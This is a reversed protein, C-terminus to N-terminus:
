CHSYKDGRVGRAEFGKEKWRINITKRNNGSGPGEHTGDHSLVRLNSQEQEILRACRKIWHSLMTFCDNRMSRTFTEQRREQMGSRNSRSRFSFPLLVITKEDCRKPLRVLCASRMNYSSNASIEGGISCQGVGAKQLYM